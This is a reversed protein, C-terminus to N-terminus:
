VRTIERQKEGGAGQEGDSRDTSPDLLGARDLEGAVDSVTERYRDWRRFPGLWSRLRRAPPTRGQKGQREESHRRAADESARRALRVLDRRREEEMVAVELQAQLTHRERDTVARARKAGAFGDWARAFSRFDTRGGCRHAALMPCVGGYRDSYAGAIIRDYRRLGDLMARQTEFPLSDVVNRLRQAHRKRSRGIV